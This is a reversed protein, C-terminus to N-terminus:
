DGNAFFIAEDSAENRLIDVFKKEEKSLNNYWNLIEIKVKNDLRSNFFFLGSGNILYTDNM